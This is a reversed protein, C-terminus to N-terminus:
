TVVVVPHAHVASEPFLVQSDRDFAVPDPLPTIVAVAAAFVDPAVWVPIM